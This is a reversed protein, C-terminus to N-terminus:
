TQPMTQKSEKSQSTWDICKIVSRSNCNYLTLRSDDTLIFLCNIISNYSAHCIHRPDILHKLDLEDHMMMM